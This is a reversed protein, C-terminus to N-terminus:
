IEDNDLPCTLQNWIKSVTFQVATFGPTCPVSEYAPKMERASIEPTITILHNKM